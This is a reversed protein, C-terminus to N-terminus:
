KKIHNQIKAINRFPLYSKSFWKIEPDSQEEDEICVAFMYQAENNDGFEYLFFSLPMDGPLCRDSFKGEYIFSPGNKMDFVSFGHLKLFCEKLTWIEFFREENHSIYENEGGTFFKEAIQKANALPKVFQVDCATHVGKGIVHSVAVMNKSHSINFDANGNSFYPRGNENKVIDNEFLPRKELLSL